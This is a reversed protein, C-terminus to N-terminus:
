DLEPTKQTLLTGLGAAEITVDLMTSFNKIFVQVEDTRVAEHLAQLWKQKFRGERALTVKEYYFEYFYNTLTSYVSSSLYNLPNVQLDLSVDSAILVELLARPESDLMKLLSRLAPQYFNWLECQFRVRIGDLAQELPSRQLEEAIQSPSKRLQLEFDFTQEAPASSLGTGVKQEFTETAQELAREKLVFALVLKGEAVSCLTKFEPLKLRQQLTLCAASPDQGEKLPFTFTWMVPFEKFRQLQPDMDHQPKNVSLHGKVRLGPHDLSPMNGASIDWKTKSVTQTGVVTKFAEGYKNLFGTMNAMRTALKAMKRTKGMRGSRWWAGFEELSIKGDGNIDIETIITQIEEDSLSEGLRKGIDRIESLEILGSHDRDFENFLHTVLEVIDDDRSRFKGLLQSGSNFDSSSLYECSMNKAFEKAQQELQSDSPLNYGYVYKQSCTPLLSYSQLAFELDSQDAVVLMLVSLNPPKAVQAEERNSATLRIEPIGTVLGRIYATTEASGVALVKFIPLPELATQPTFYTPLELSQLSRLRGVEMINRSSM